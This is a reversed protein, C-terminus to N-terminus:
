YAHQLALQTRLSQSRRARGAGSRWGLRGYKDLTGMTEVTTKFRYDPGILGFVAATTFLKANSAPTFLKDANVAVLTRGSDLSVADVAWFSRTADPEQLITEIDRAVNAAPAPKNKGIAFAPFLLTLSVVIGAVYRVRPM